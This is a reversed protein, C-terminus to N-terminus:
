AKFFKDRYYRLESISSYIDDRARHASPKEEKYKTAAPYWRNVLEKISSVDVIRYHLYNEVEPMARRLFRRDQWISNGCLPVKRPPAFARIFELTAAGAQEETVTSELVKQWLGSKSHHERNWDDMSTLVELSRGVVLDPGDALVVLAADTVVTAIELIVDRTPDLGTMEMDMWVLVDASKGQQEGM